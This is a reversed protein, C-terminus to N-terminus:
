YPEERRMVCKNYGWLLYKVCASAWWVLYDLIRETHRNKLLYPTLVTDEPDIRDTCDKDLQRFRQWIRQTEIFSLGYPEGLNEIATRNPVPVSSGSGMTNILKSPVFHFHLLRGLNIRIRCNL